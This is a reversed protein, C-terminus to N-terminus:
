KHGGAAYAGWIEKLRAERGCAKYYATYRLPNVKCYDQHYEEAPYFKTLPVIETAIKGKFRPEQELKAKSALAAKKQAENAYFIVTRYQSGHDCFQGDKQTPDINHWYVDLLKEYTIRSPDFTVQASEAHGTRGTSVQEYTPNVTTGGAYGSVASVVGPLDEFASEECWFCGGAFVAVENPAPRAPASPVIVLAALLVLAVRLVNRPSL